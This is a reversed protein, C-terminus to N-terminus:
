KYMFGEYTKLSNVSNINAKQLTQLIAADRSISLWEGNVYKWLTTVSPNNIFFTNMNDFRMSGVMHWKGDSVISIIGSVEEGSLSISTANNTKIWYGYSNQLSNLPKDTSVNNEATWIYWSGKQYSRVIQIDSNNLNNLNITVQMPLAILNWGKDLNLIETYSTANKPNTGNKIEDINSIGDGDSDKTADSSDLPNFGYRKEDTDSMEDNDDDTDANNGIGDKDTDITETADYPLDDETDVVGDGDSDLLTSEGVFVLFIQSNEYTLDVSLPAFSNSANASNVKVNLGSVESTSDIKHYFEGNTDLYVKASGIMVYTAKDISNANYVKGKISFIPLYKIGTIEKTVKANQTHATIKLKINKGYLAKIDPVIFTAKSNISQGKFVVYKNIGDVLTVFINEFGVKTGAKAFSGSINVSYASNVMMSSPGTFLINNSFPVSGTNNAHITATNLGTYNASDVFGLNDGGNVVIKYGDVPEISAPYFCVKKFNKSGAYERFYGENTNWWYYESVKSSYESDTTTNATLVISNDKGCFQSSGNSKTVPNTTNFKIGVANNEYYQPEYEYGIEKYLLKSIDLSDATQFKVDTHSFNGALVTNANKLIVMAEFVSLNTTPELLPNNVNSRNGNMLGKAIATNFYKWAWPAVNALDTTDKFDVLYDRNDLIALDLGEVVMAIFEQRSVKDLPRFLSNEKSIPTINDDGIYYSLRLLSSYYDSKVDADAFALYYESMDYNKFATSKNSLFKELMIVAEARSVPADMNASKLITSVRPDYNIFEQRFVEAEASSNNEIVNIAFQSSGNILDNLNTSQKSFMYFRQGGLLSPTCKVKASTTTVAYAATCTANDMNMYITSPLNQGIVTFVNEIGIIGSNPTVSYAVTDNVSIKDFWYWENASVQDNIDTVLFKIKYTSNSLSSINISFSQTSQTGSVDRSGSGVVSGATDYIGYAVRKLGDIANATVSLDFNASRQDRSGDPNTPINITLTPTTDVITFSYIFNKTRRTKLGQNDFVDAIIQYTTGSSLNTLESRPFTVSYSGGSKNSLGKKTVGSIASGSTTTLYIDTGMLGSEPDSITYNVVVDGATNISITGVSMTAAQNQTFSYIFNKTRRTKLGQNDFVDAIIQYTTGSSLNTLESRPFTVSYSGGSKNSLGKKTVGSIASGSTTTLYIDTGMLGSEPDSITYNVVVDGATNISITGISMTAAQNPPLKRYGSNQSSVASCGSSNCAKLSYYYTTGATASTDDYYTTTRSTKFSGNRYVNYSTAGSISNWSISVKDLYTGDSANPVSPKSPIPEKVAFSATSTAVVSGSPNYTRVSIKHNSYRLQTNISYTWIRRNSDPSLNWLYNSGDLSYTLKYGDPLNAGSDCTLTANDGYYVTSPSVQCTVASWGSTVFTFLLILKIILNNSNM